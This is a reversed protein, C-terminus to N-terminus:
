KGESAGQDKKDKKFMDKIKLVVGPAKDIIEDVAAVAGAISGAPYGASGDINLLRVEGDATVVLFAVPSVTIGTGGGGGFGSEASANKKDFPYEAGGSGIGVSVRSVPIVVTNELINIPEGIVTESTALEKIGELANKIIDGIPQKNTM